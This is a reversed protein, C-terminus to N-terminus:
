KVFIPIGPGDVGIFGWYNVCIRGSLQQHAVYQSSYRGGVAEQPRKRRRYVYKRRKVNSKFCVEDTFAITNLYQSNERHKRLMNQCFEVRKRKHEPTLFVKKINVEKLRSRVIYYSKRSSRSYEAVTAFPNAQFHHIIEVDQQPDTSRARGM